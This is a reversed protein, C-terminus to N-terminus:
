DGMMSIAGFFNGDAKRENDTSSITIMQIFQPSSLYQVISFYSYLKIVLNLDFLLWNPSFISVKLCFFILFFFFSLFFFVSSFHFYSLFIRPFNLPFNYLVCFFSFVKETSEKREASAAMGNGMLFNSKIERFSVWFFLFLHVFIDKVNFICWIFFFLLTYLVYMLLLTVKKDHVVLLPLAASNLPFFVLEHLPPFYRFLFFLLNKLRLIIM